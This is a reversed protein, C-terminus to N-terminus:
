QAGSSGFLDRKWPEAGVVTADRKTTRRSSVHLKAHTQHAQGNAASRSKRREPLTQPSAPPHEDVANRTDTAANTQAEGTGERAELPVAGQAVAPISLDALQEDFGALESKWTANDPALRTLRAIIARGQRLAELARANENMERLATALTGYSTALHHQGRPDGPSETATGDFANQADRYSQLAELPLALGMQVDGIKEYAPALDRQSAAADPDAAALGELIAAADRYSKLAEPLEGREALVDGIKEHSVALGRQWGNDAAALREIIAHGDRYSRLAEPLNGQDALMDGIKEHSIALDRQRGGDAAALREIIAHADRYSKLAGPLDGHGALMDGIKGYANSLDQQHDSSELGGAPIGVLV